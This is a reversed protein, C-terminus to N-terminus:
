PQLDLRALPPPPTPAPRPPRHQPLPSPATPTPSGDPQAVALRDFVCGPLRAAPQGSRYGAAAPPGEAAGGPYACGVRGAGDRLAGRTPHGILAAREPPRHLSRWGLGRCLPWAADRCAWCANPPCPPSREPARVRSHTNRSCALPPRRPVLLHVGLPDSRSPGDEPATAHSAKQQEDRYRCM